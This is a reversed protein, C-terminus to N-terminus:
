KNVDFLSRGIWDVAFTPPTLVVIPIFLLSKRFLDMDRPKWYLKYVDDAARPVMSVPHVLVIDSALAVTGLTMAPPALAIQAAAQQPHIWEDTVNLARRNNENFCACSLLFLLPLMCIILAISNGKDLFRM